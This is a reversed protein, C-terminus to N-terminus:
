ERKESSSGCPCNKEKRSTSNSRWVVEQRPLISFSRLSQAWDRADIVFLGPVDGLLLTISYIWSDFANWQDYHIDKEKKGYQKLHCHCPTM